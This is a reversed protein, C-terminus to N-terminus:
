NSRRIRLRARLQHARGLAGSALDDSLELRRKLSDYAALVHRDAWISVAKLGDGPRSRYHTPRRHPREEETFYYLALSRRAVDPPCALRDPHGHHASGSTTFVLLRNGFPEVEAVPATVDHDWLQLAGGWAPDWRENLYLLVNVRRRWRAETHHTTFDTHVNLWGGRLTQHLGGGDMTPDAILREFGTLDSLFKVFDDACMAEAVAGLTPGWTSRRPNAYKTENVHLYPTWTPDAIPPFEATAAAFVDPALVDDLVIHPYPEASSYQPALDILRDRLSGICLVETGTENM